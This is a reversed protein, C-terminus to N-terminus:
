VAKSFFPNPNFRMARGASELRAILRQRRQQRAEFKQLEGFERSLREFYQAETERYAPENNQMFFDFKTMKFEEFYKESESTSGDPVQRQIKIM